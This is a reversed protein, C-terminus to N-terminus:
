LPVQNQSSVTGLEFDNRRASNGLRGPRLNLLDIGSLEPVTNLDQTLAATFLTDVWWFIDRRRIARRLRRMRGQREVRSMGFAQYIADAVGNTDYPNVLIAHRGLRRAVGAFESLIIVGNNDVQAACYEKAVLNMGDKLPTVLAIDAARYFALLEERALSRFIYHVPVWGPETFRGNIRGVLSEVESRLQDYEAIGTRSPVMVQVLTMKRRLDQYRELAREFAKLREPIGKSYDLRDVGLVICDTPIQERLKAMRQVVTPNRAQHDFESFDISIGFSGVRIERSARLVVVRRRTDSRPVGIYAGVCDLFNNRDRSTQFGVLDYGM